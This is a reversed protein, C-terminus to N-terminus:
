RSFWSPTAEPEDEGFQHGQIEYCLTSPYEDLNPSNWIFCVGIINNASSNSDYPLPWRFAIHLIIIVLPPLLYKINHYM